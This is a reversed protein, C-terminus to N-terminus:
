YTLHLLFIHSHARFTDVKKGGFLIRCVRFIGPQQGTEVKTHTTEDEDGSLGQSETDTRSWTEEGLVPRTVPLCPLSPLCSPRDKQVSVFVSPAFLLHCSAVEPQYVVTKPEQVLEQSVSGVGM